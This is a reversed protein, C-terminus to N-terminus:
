EKLQFGQHLEDMAKQDKRSQDLKFEERKKDKLNEMAKRRMSLRSLEGRKEILEDETAIIKKGLAEIDRRDAAIRAVQFAAWHMNETFRRPGEELLSRLEQELTEIKVKYEQLERVLAAVETKKMTERLVLFDLVRELRFKFRM